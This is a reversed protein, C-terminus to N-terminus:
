PDKLHSSCTDRNRVGKGGPELISARSLVHHRGLLTTWISQEKATDRNNTAEQRGSSRSQFGLWKTLLSRAYAAASISTASRQRRFIQM